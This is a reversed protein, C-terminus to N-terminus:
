NKIVFSGFSESLAELIKLNQESTFSKLSRLTKSGPATEVLVSILFWDGSLLHQAFKGGTVTLEACVLPQSLKHIKIPPKAGLLEDFTIRRYNVLPPQSVTPSSMVVPEGSLYQNLTDPSLESNFRIESLIQRIHFLVPAESIESVESTIEGLNRFQQMIDPDPSHVERYFSLLSIKIVNPLDLNPM